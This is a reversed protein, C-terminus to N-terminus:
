WTDRLYKWQIQSNERSRITRLDLKIFDLYLKLHNMSLEQFNFKLPNSFVCNTGDYFCTTGPYVALVIANEPLAMHPYKDYNVTFRPMPILQKRTFVLLKKEQDDVDICEYRHNSISGKVQFIFKRILKNTINEKEERLDFTTCCSFFNSFIDYKTNFIKKLFTKIVSM